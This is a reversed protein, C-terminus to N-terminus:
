GECAKWRRTLEPGNGDVARPFSAVRRLCQQEADGPAHGILGQRELREHHAFFDDSFRSDLPRLSADAALTHLFATEGCAIRVLLRDPGEPLLSRVFPIRGEASCLDPRPFVLYAAERGGTFGDWAGTPERPGASFPVELAVLVGHGLGAGPNNVGALLVEGVGDGDLDHTMAFHLAGPHWYEDVLRGTAPELLAVQAPYWLAHNAVTLIYHHHGARLHRLLRGEFVQAFSRGAWALPRGYRYEWAQRGDADFAVVRAPPTGGEGPPVNVLVDARGDGTLDTVLWEELSFEPVRLASLRALEPIERRWCVRGGADLVTMSGHAIAVSVPDRSSPAHGLWLGPGAIGVIGLLWAPWRALGRRRPAASATERAESGAEAEPSPVVGHRRRAIWQDLEDAYAFPHSRCETPQRRIPIDTNKQWRQATRVDVGLHHAIEKWSSLVLRPHTSAPPQLNPTAM